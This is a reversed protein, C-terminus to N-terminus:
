AALPQTQQQSQPCTPLASANDMMDVAKAGAIAASWVAMPTRDALARHPRLENYLVTQSRGRSCNEAIATDTADM